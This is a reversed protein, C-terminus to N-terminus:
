YDSKRNIKIGSEKLRVWEGATVKVYFAGRGAMGNHIEPDHGLLIKIQSETRHSGKVKYRRTGM